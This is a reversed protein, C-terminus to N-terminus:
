KKKKEKNRVGKETQGREILDLRVGKKKKASV